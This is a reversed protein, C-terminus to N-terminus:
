INMTHEAKKTESFIPLDRSAIVASTINNQACCITLRNKERFNAYLPQIGAEEQAKKFEILCTPESGKRIYRM